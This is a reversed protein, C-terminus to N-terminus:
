DKAGMAEIAEPSPGIFTLGADRCARAFAANEALFGYGPHIAQAGACAAAELIADARLYSESAAAPGIWIAQDARAVHLADRDADSYVAIARIGLRKLTRIIRCAIEGRNAILVADFVLTLEALRARAQGPVRWHGRPSRTHGQAGRDAARHRRDAPCRDPTRQSRAILRKAAAIADPGGQLLEGVVHEVARDLQDPPVVEHVLGVRAAEAASIREGTLMLRRAQRPGVAALVYPGIVAPILGLRVETTGFTAQASAVVIDCCAVLGTGGGLAAGNVRAVTPKPLENLTQMLKALARADALNDAEGYAATRRMWNLDAGASFSRGAGTLVVVRVAGDAGLGALEVTLEAILQDDFANHIEPRDLTLWVVGKARREVRFLAETM